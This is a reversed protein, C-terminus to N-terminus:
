LRDNQQFAFCFVYRTGYGRGPKEACERGSKQCCLTKAEFADSEFQPPRGIFLQWISPMSHRAAVGIKEPFVPVERWGLVVLNEEEVVQEILMRHFQQLASDVPLFIMGVGYDGKAPLDIEVGHLVTEFFTHPIQTLIGSGDGTDEDCGCAGRHDMNILIELGNQVIEHTPIGSLTCVM